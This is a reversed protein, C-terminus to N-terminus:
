MPKTKQLPAPTTVSQAGSGGKKTSLPKAIPAKKVPKVAAPIPPTEDEEDVTDVSESGNFSSLNGASDGTSSFTYDSVLNGKFQITLNQYDIGKGYPNGMGLMMGYLGWVHGRSKSYMYQWMETNSGSRSVGSPQGLMSLVEQKTTSGKTIKQISTSDIKNGTHPTACGGLVALIFGFLVLKLITKM